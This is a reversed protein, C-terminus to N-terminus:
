SDLSDFTLPADRGTLDRLALETSWVRGELAGRDDRKRRPRWRLPQAPKRATEPSQQLRGTDPERSSSLERLVPTQGSETWTIPPFSEM